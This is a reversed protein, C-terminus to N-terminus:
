IMWKLPIKGSNYVMSKPSGGNNSGGLQCADQPLVQVQADQFADRIESEGLTRGHSKQGIPAPRWLRQCSAVSWPDPPTCSFFFVRHPEVFLVTIWDFTDKKPPPPLLHDWVVEPHNHHLFCTSSYSIANVNSTRSQKPESRIHLQLRWLAEFSEFYNSQIM